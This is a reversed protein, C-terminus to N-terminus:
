HTLDLRTLKLSNEGLYFLGCSTKLLNELVSAFFFSFNKKLNCANGVQGNAALFLAISYKLSLHNFVM